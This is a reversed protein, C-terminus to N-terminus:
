VQYVPSNSAPTHQVITTYTLRDDADPRATPTTIHSQVLPEAIELTFENDVSRAGGLWSLDTTLDIEQGLLNEADNDVFFRVRVQLWALTM